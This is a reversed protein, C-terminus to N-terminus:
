PEGRLGSSGRQRGRERVLERELYPVKDNELYLMAGLLQNVESELEQIKKNAEEVNNWYIM